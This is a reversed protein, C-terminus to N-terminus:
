GTTATRRLRRVPPGAVATPAAEAVACAAQYALKFRDSKPHQQTLYTLHELAEAARGVRCLFQALHWRVLVNHPALAFAARLEPERQRMPLKQARTIHFRASRETGSIMAALDDATPEAALIARTITALCGAEALVAAVVHGGCEVPVLAVARGREAIMRAHKADQTLPDFFIYHRANQAVDLDDPRFAISEAAKHWRHEFPVAARQISFQPGFSITKAVGIRDGYTTAAYGGMSSGTATAGPATVAAVAALCDDLDPYQYWHWGAPIIHVANLGYKTAFGAGFPPRRANRAALPEFTVLDALPRDPAGRTWVARLYDSHYIASPEM